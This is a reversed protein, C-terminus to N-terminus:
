IKSRDNSILYRLKSYSDDSPEDLCIGCVKDEESHIRAEIDAQGGTQVLEVESQPNQSKKRLNRRTLGAPVDLPVLVSSSSGDTMGQELLKKTKSFMEEASCTSEETSALYGSSSSVVSLCLFALTSLIM